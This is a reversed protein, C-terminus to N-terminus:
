PNQRAARHTRALFRQAAREWQLAGRAGQAARQLSGDEWGAFVCPDVYSKRCVAVSNGLMGAVEAIVERSVADVDHAEGEVAAPMGALIRFAALTAGWTRFDKASFEGGMADRLYDNVDASGVRHVTGDEDLFQFLQQGPLQHIRRLARVLKPDDIGVDFRHGGKGPFCLRLGGRGFKAHRNRLTTLGYSRNDRAYADNGVRLLSTSLISVTTALVRERSTEELAMDRRVRTRLKPLARAFTAVREFKRADRLTRWEPHYRYQKRGRADRGSAQLHGRESSCIWVDRYAPPIALARIRALTAPDKMPHGDSDLYRFGRGCRLRRIGPADDRTFQLGAM